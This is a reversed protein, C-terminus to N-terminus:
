TAPSSSSPGRAVACGNAPSTGTPDNLSVATAQVARPTCSPWLEQCPTVLHAELSTAHRDSQEVVAPRLVVPPQGLDDARHGVLLERDVGAPLRGSASRPSRRGCPRRGGRSARCRARRAPRRPSGTAPGAPHRSPPRGSWGRRRRAPRPAPSSTRPRRGRGRGHVGSSSSSSTSRHYPSSRCTWERADIRWRCASGRRTGSRRATASARPTLWRWGTSRQRGSQLEGGSLEVPRREAPLQEKAAFAGTTSATRRM